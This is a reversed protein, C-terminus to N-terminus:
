SKNIWIWKGMWILRYEADVPSDVGGRCLAEYYDRLMQGSQVDLSRLDM